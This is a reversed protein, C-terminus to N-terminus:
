PTVTVGVSDSYIPLDRVGNMTTDVEFSILYTGIPLGTMNLIERSALDFLPGQYTVAEGPIWSNTSINYRYQGFSTDALAWWDAEQDTFAGSSLTVTVTLPTTSTITIPEDSGNAKIDAVPFNPNALKTVFLDFMGANINGDLGSKTYGAIILNNDPDVAVGSAYDSTSTGSQKTWLKTGDTSYKVTFFDYLGANINGDLGGFTSGTVYINGTSDVTVDSASDSSSTGLQRTWLRTGDPSYKALVIDNSGMNINADINGYTHGAVFVNGSSDVTVGSASERLSSGLLRTWLKTGDTLYKTIFIDSVGANINGDLDGVTRGTVYVDEGLGVAVDLALEYELTGLQRTWLKTGDTSYKTIFFDYGGMNINGDLDGDTYGTVYANGDSDVAVGKGLDSSFSGLQRTWLKIGDTSYKTLFFDSLGANTNGDLDGGTSGTVYANGGSDVTVGYAIDSTSTGLQRTWLKIGANSYKTLFLDHWGANTNGDLDGDTYGTVYSNGGSDVAVGYAWDYEPTGLQRTWQTAYPAEALAPSYAFLLLLILIPFIISLRKTESM